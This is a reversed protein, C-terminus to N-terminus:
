EVKAGKIQEITKEMKKYLENSIPALPLRVHAETVGLIELAAKIGGPNGEAFLLYVFDILLYHYKRAKNYDGIFCAKSIASFEEPFANAIVSIIGDGGLSMHPVVLPDDGSLVLFKSPKRKIIAGVQDLDGSAEKMAIINSHNALELTTSSSMNSATRGPVNYLILPLPSADALAKYHAIIGNQTPKNYYPSASLIADVGKLDIKEFGHILARTDNGGHGFVLPLRGENVDVVCDLVEQKESQTLTASEGTTGQVVLYDVGGDILHNTLAELAPFDVEGSVKFPTVMAVGTGRFDKM